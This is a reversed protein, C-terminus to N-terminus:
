TRCSAFMSNRSPRSRPFRMPAARWRIRIAAPRILVRNMETARPNTTLPERVYLAFCNHQCSGAGLPFAPNYGWLTTPGLTPHIQDRFQGINITYHTKGTVPAPLADPAAVPIGGPGVGRFATKWLPTSQPTTQYFGWARDTFGGYLALGAGGIVVRKVFERRNSM